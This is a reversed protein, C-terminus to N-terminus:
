LLQISCYLRVQSVKLYILAEIGYGEVSTLSIEGSLHRAYIRSLPLGHGYGAQLPLSYKFIFLINIFVYILTIIVMVHAETSNMNLM